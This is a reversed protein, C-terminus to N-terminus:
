GLSSRAALLQRVGCVCEDREVDVTCDQQYYHYLVAPPPLPPSSATQRGSFAGDCGLVWKENRANTSGEWNCIRSTRKQMGATKSRKRSGLWNWRTGRWSRVSPCGFPRPCRNRDSDQHGHGRLRVDRTAHHIVNKRRMFLQAGGM